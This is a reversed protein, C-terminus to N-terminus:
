GLKAGRVLPEVIDSLKCSAVGVVKDAGGYYLYIKGKEVVHGCPFVVNNVIGIKEYDETPEFVPDTSRALVLTPDHLDLLVAGIRYTNHRKSVGHYFLLWGDKTKIPPGSIGVKSSDWMGTRPGLVSICKDIKEKEFDLTDVYDACIDTGIRHFTL